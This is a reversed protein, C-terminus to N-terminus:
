PNEKTTFAIDRRSPLLHQGADVVITQGTISPATAGYCVTAAIDDLTTSRGLPLRTRAKEFAADKLDDSPLTLGPAIGIVRISPALALAMTQTLGELAYKSITYSLYDPDPNGLKQDLINIIVPLRAAPNAAATYKAFAQMMLAPARANIAFHRDFNEAELDAICDYEFLSANNVLCGLVGGKEVIVKVAEPVLARAQAPDQLDAQIVFAQGGAQEILAATEKAADGSRHYHVAVIRGERGLAQAIARGIRGAAGTVLAAPLADTM